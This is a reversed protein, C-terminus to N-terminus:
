YFSAMIDYNADAVLHARTEYAWRAVTLSVIPAIVARSDKPAWAITDGSMRTRAGVASDDLDDSPVVRLTEQRV